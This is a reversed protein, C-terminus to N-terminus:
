ILIIWGETHRRCLECHDEKMEETESVLNCSKFRHGDFAAGRVPQRLLRPCLWTVDIEPFSVARRYHNM